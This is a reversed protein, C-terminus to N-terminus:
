KFYSVASAKVAKRVAARIDKKRARYVPFFFPHAPEKQTGFEQARTYDYAYAYGAKGNKIPKRTGKGGAKIFVRFFKTGKAPAEELVVSDKLAGPTASSADVHAVSKIESVLLAAQTVLTDKIPGTLEDPLALLLDNIRRMQQMVGSNDSAAM